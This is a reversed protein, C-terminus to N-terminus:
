SWLTPRVGFMSADSGVLGFIYGLVATIVFLLGTLLFATQQWGDAESFYNKWTAEADFLAGKVLEITRAPNLV